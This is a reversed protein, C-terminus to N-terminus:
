NSCSSYKIKCEKAVKTVLFNALQDKEISWVLGVWLKVLNLELNTYNIKVSWNQKLKLGGM